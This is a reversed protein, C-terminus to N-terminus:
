SVLSSKYSTAGDRRGRGEKERERNLNAVRRTSFRCDIEVGFVLHPLLEGLVHCGIAVGLVGVGIGRLVHPKWLRGVVRKVELHSM